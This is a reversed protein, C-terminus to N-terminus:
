VITPYVHSFSLKHGLGTVIIYFIGLLALVVVIAFLVFAAVRAAGNAGGTSATTTGGGATATSPQGVALMRVGLAFIAPLGAGLIVGTLLVKWAGALALGLEHM